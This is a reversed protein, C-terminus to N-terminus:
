KGDLWIPTVYSPPSVESCIRQPPSLWSMHASGFCGERIIIPLSPPTINVVVRPRSHLETRSGIPCIYWTVVSM